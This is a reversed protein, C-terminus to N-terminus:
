TRMKIVRRVVFRDIAVLLFLSIFTLVVVQTTNSDQEKMSQSVILSREKAIFEQAHAYFHVYSTVVNSFLSPQRATSVSAPANLVYWVVSLVLAMALIRGLNDIIKSSLSKKKSPAIIGLVAATFGKSPRALPAAKAARALNRHFEVEARCQSCMELHVMLKTRVGNAITGDVVQLIETTSLHNM